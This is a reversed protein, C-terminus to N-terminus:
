GILAEKKLEEMTKLFFTQSAQLLEPLLSSFFLAYPYAQGVSLEQMIIRSKRHFEESSRSKDYRVDEWGFWHRKQEVMLCALIQNIHKVFNGDSAIVQLTAYEGASINAPNSVIRYTKGGIKFRRNKPKKNPYQGLWDMRSYIAIRENHPISEIDEISTGSLVSLVQNMQEEADLDTRQRLLDLEYLQSLTVQNWSKPMKM